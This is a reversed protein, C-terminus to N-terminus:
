GKRDGGRVTVIKTNDGYKQMKWFVIPFSLIYDKLNVESLLM